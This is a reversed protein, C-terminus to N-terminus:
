AGGIGPHLTQFLVPNILRQEGDVTNAYLAVPPQKGFQVETNTPAMIILDTMERLYNLYRQKDAKYDMEAIGKSLASALSLLRLDEHQERTMITM